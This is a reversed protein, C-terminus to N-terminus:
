RFSPPAPYSFSGHPPTDMGPRREGASFRQWITPTLIMRRDSSLDAINRGFHSRLPTLSLNVTALMEGCGPCLFRFYGESVKSPPGTRGLAAVTVPMPLDNRLRRLLDKSTM